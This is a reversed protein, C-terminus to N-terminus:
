QGYKIEREYYGLKNIINVCIGLLVYNVWTNYLFKYEIDLVLFLCFISILHYYVRYKNIKNKM